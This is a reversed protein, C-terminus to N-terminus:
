EKMINHMLMGEINWGNHCVGGYEQIMGDMNGGYELRIEDFKM